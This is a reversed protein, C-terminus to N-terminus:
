LSRANSKLFEFEIRACQPSGQCIVRYIFTAFLNVLATTCNGAQNATVNEMQVHEKVMTAIAMTKVVSIKFM